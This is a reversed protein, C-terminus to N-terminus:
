RVVRMPVKRLANIFVGPSGTPRGECELRLGRKNMEDLLIEVELRALHNGLCFHTGRGFALHDRRERGLKFMHPDSFAEPDRNGAAYWMLVFDGAKIQKGRLEVDETATRGMHMVPCTYRLFEEVGASLAARDATEIQARVRDDDSMLVLSQAILTHTTEYGAVILSSVMECYERDTIGEGARSANTLETAMDTDPEKSKRERLELAYAECEKVAAISREVGIAPDMRGFIDNAWKVILWRDSPPVGMVTAIVQGPLESAISPIADIKDQAIVDDVIKVCLERIWGEFRAVVAPSFAKAAFGRLRTHQPPDCYMINDRKYKAHERLNPYHMGEASSFGKPNVSIERIDDYRTLSWVTGGLPNPEGHVPDERRLEDFLAHPPGEAFTRHDILSPVSDSLMM